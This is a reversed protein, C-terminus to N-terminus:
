RGHRPFSLVVSVATRAPSSGVLGLLEPVLVGTDFPTTGPTRRASCHSTSIAVCSRAIPRHGVEQRVGGSDSTGVAGLTLGVGIRATLDEVDAPARRMRGRPTASVVARYPRLREQRTARLRAAVVISAPALQHMARAAHRGGGGGAAGPAPRTARRSSGRGPGLAVWPTWRVLMEARVGSRDTSTGRKANAQRFREADGM